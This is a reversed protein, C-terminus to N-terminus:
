RRYRPPSTTIDSQRRRLYQILLQRARQKTAEDSPGDGGDTGNTLPWGLQKGISIWYRERERWLIRDCRELILLSPQLGHRKIKRLWRVKATNANDDMHETYRRVPNNSKGIYRVKNTLPCVLAYIYTHTQM